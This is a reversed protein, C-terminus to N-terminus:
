AARDPQPQGSQGFVRLPWLERIEEAARHLEEAIQAFRAAEFRALPGAVSITGAVPDSADFGSRFAVAVAATGAEAEEVATAFGARRAQAVQAMVEEVTKGCRPGLSCHGTVGRESLLALARGEEMTALWAKGNATAHLVIERGMDPEYRLGAPAGQARAVWVLDDGDVVALRCYERTRLALRNLVSQVVDPVLRTELQRFGLVSIRLSLRYASSDPEQFVWGREALTTLIRHTASVPIGVAEALVTVEQPTKSGAMAEIVSVTRDVASVSM